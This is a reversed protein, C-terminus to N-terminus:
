VVPSLSSHFELCCLTDRRSNRLSLLDLIRAPAAGVGGMTHKAFASVRAHSGAGSGFNSRSLSAPTAAEPTTRAAQVGCVAGGVVCGAGWFFFRTSVIWDKAWVATRGTRSAQVALVPCATSNTSPSVLLESMIVMATGLYRIFDDNNVIPLFRNVIQKALDFVGCGQQHQEIWM